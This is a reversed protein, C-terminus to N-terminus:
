VNSYLMDHMVGQTVRVLRVQIFRIRFLFLKFLNRKERKGRLVSGSQMKDCVMCLPWKRYFYMGPSPITFMHRAQSM